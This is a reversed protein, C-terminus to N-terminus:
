SSASLHSSPQPLSSLHTKNKFFRIFMIRQESDKNSTTDSVVYYRGVITTGESVVRLPRRSGAEAVVLMSFVLVTTSTSTLRRGSSTNDVFLLRSGSRSIKWVVMMSSAATFIICTTWSNAAIMLRVPLRYINTEM